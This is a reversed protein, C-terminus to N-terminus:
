RLRYAAQLVAEPRARVRWNDNLAGWRITGSPDVLLECHASQGCLKPALRMEEDSLLPFPLKLEARFRAAVAPPDPSIGVLLVGADLFRAASPAFASLTARCSPCWGGRYVVLIAPKGRLSALQVPRGAADLLSENPLPKGIPLAPASEPLRHRVFHGVAVLAGLSVAGLLALLVARRQHKPQTATRAIHVLALTALLVVADFPWPRDRLAPPLLRLHDLLFYLPLGASAAVAFLLPARAISTRTASKVTL